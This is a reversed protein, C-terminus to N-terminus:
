SKLFYAQCALTMLENSLTPSMGRFRAIDVLEEVIDRPHVARPKRKAKVYFETVIYRLADDTYPIGAREAVRM